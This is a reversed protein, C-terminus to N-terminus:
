AARAAEKLLDEPDTGPMLEDCIIARWQESVAKFKIEDMASFSVSKFKLKVLGPRVDVERVMGSKMKLWDMLDETDCFRPHTHEVVKQLMAMMLKHFDPNRPRRPADTRVYGGNKCGDFLAQTVPDAPFLGNGHKLWLAETM